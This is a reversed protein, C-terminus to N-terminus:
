DYFVRHLKVSPEERGHTFFTEVLVEMGGNEDEPWVTVCRSFPSEEGSAYGYFTDPIGEGTSQVNLKKNKCEELSDKKEEVGEKYSVRWFTVDEEGRIESENNKVVEMAEKSLFVAQTQAGLFGTQRVARDGLALMVVVVAVLISVTALLEILTLGKEKNM